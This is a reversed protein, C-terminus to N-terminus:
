RAGVLAVTKGAEVNLSFGDFVDIEQRTPYAFKVDRFQINGEVSVPKLGEKSSSDIVYKPLPAISGRRQIKEEEETHSEGHGNTTKRRSMALLAPYVASRAGVDLLFSSDTLKVSACRWVVHRESVKRRVLLRRSPLLWRRSCLLRLHSGLSPALYVALLPSVSTTTLFLVLLTVAQIGYTTM